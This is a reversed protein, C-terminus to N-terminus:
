KTTGTLRYVLHEDKHHWFHYIVPEGPGTITGVGRYHKGWLWRGSLDCRRPLVCLRQQWVARNYYWDRQDVLHQHNYIPFIMM